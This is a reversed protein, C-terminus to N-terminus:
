LCVYVRNATLKAVARSPRKPTTYGELVAVKSSENSSPLKRKLRRANDLQEPTPVVQRSPIVDAKLVLKTAFGALKLGYGHYDEPCFHDSCIHGSGATWTNPDRKQRVFSIWQRRIREEKPFQHLTVGDANTKNCFMVVCRKGPEKKKKRQGEGNDKGDESNIKDNEMARTRQQLRSQPNDFLVHLQSVISILRVESRSKFVILYREERLVAHKQSWM